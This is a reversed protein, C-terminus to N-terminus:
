HVVQCDTIIRPVLFLYERVLCYPFICCHADTLFEDGFSLLSLVRFCLSILICNTSFGPCCLILLLMPDLAVYSGIFTARKSIHWARKRLVM